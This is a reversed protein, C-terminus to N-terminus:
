RAYGYVASVVGEVFNSGESAWYIAHADATIARAFSFRKTTLARVDSGDRRATWIPSEDIAGESDWETWYIADDTVTFSSVFHGPHARAVIARPGGTKPMTWIEDSTTSWLAGGDVFLGNTSPLGSALITPAGGSKAMSRLEHGSTLWYVRADDCAVHSVADDAKTTEQIIQAVSASAARAVLAPAPQDAAARLAGWTGWFFAGQGDGALGRGGNSGAVDLSVSFGGAKARALM